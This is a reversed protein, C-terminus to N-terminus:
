SRYEEGSAEGAADPWPVGRAIVGGGNEGAEGTGLGLEGVVRVEMIMGTKGGARNWGGCDLYL